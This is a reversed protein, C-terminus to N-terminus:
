CDHRVTASSPTLWATDLLSTRIIRSNKKAQSTGRAKSGRSTGVDARITNVTAVNDNGVEWRNWWPAGPEMPHDKGKVPM